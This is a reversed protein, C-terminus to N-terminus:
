SAIKQEHEDELRTIGIPVFIGCGMRRRGGVGRVQLVISGEDTLEHITLSFGVITQTGIRLIRRAGVIPEGHIGLEDLKYSVAKLFSEPETHNKITVCRSYLSVSPRLNFIQPAGLLINHIGVNLKKGSIALIESIREQPLRMKLKAKPDIQTIGDGRAVGPLTEIALWDASHVDPIHKSIAAFLTYGHDTPVTKGIIPFRLEVYSM